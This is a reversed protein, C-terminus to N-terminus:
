PTEKRKKDWFSGRRCLKDRDNKDALLMEVARELYLTNQSGKVLVADARRISTPISEKAKSFTEFALFDFKAEELIPAAFRQIAHGILIAFDCTKLIERALAEHELQSLSGLERMDGLIAVKRRGGAAEKLARLAGIAAELSSNYSSDLITSNKIGKFVEFRGAPLSFNNSLAELSEKISLGCSFAIALAMIITISYYGPLPRPVKVLYEDKLFIFKVLFHNGLTKSSVIYFDASKNKESVTITKSRLPLLNSIFRDDLNVISRGNEDISTLLLSEQKATEELIEAKREDPNEGKVLSDFYLSHEIFINTLVGIKPKVIKLLYEMNKPPYPSDIGMEAIYYDYKEWNTILKIPANIVVRLWDSFNYNQPEIGLINLPIGSESNKGKSQKVKYKTSMIQYLVYSLSTKGSAGGIGIITPNIKKLQIKALIRLYFLIPRGLIKKM